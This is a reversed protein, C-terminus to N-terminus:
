LSKKSRAIKQRVLARDYQYLRKRELKEREDSTRSMHEDGLKRRLEQPQRADKGLAVRLKSRVYRGLPLKKGGSRMEAPVDGLVELAKKAGVGGLSKALMEVATGGIGPRLSMRAFEPHRGELRPDDKRTWKKSVYGTIYQATLENLEGIHVFGLPEGDESWAKEILSGELMSVGFLAVHYHPRGYRDGYEGVGYFRFPRPIYERLRKIYGSLVSPHVEVPDNKFTLTAFSSAEHMGLELMMRGTWQRRLNIRCPLCQGCGFDARGTRFPRVCLM